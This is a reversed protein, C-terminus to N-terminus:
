RRRPVRTNLVHFAAGVAAGLGIWFAGHLTSLGFLGGTGAGCAVRGAAVLAPRAADLMSPRLVIVPRRSQGLWGYDFSAVAGYAM